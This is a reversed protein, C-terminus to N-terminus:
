WGSRNRVGSRERALVGFVGAMERERADVRDEDLRHVRLALGGRRQAGRAVHAHRRERREHAPVARPQERALREGVRKAGGSVFSCARHQHVAQRWRVGARTEVHQGRM